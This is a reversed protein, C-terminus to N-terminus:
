RDRHDLPPFCWRQGTLAAKKLFATPPLFHLRCILQNMNLANAQFVKRFTLIRTCASHRCSGLYQPTLLSADLSVQAGAVFTTASVTLACAKIWLWVEDVNRLRPACNWANTCTVSQVTGKPLLQRKPAWSGKTVNNCQSLSMQDIDSNSMFLFTSMM